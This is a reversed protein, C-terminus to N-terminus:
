GSICWILDYITGVYRKEDGKTVEGRDDGCKNDYIYWLIWENDDGLMKSLIGGKSEHISFMLDFLPSEPVCGITESISDQMASLEKYESIHKELLDYKEEETM